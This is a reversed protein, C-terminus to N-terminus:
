TRHSSHSCVQQPGRLIQAPLLRRVRGHRRRHQHLRATHHVAAPRASTSVRRHVPRGDAAGDVLREGDAARLRVPVALRLSEAPGQHLRRQRAAGRLPVLTAPLHRTSCAHRRRGAGECMVATVVAIVACEGCVGALQRLSGWYVSVSRYHVPLPPGSPGSDTTTTV